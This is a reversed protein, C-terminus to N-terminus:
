RQLQQNSATSSRSQMLRCYMITIVVIVSLMIIIIIIIIFPLLIFAVGEIGYSICSSLLVNHLTKIECGFHKYPAYISVVFLILM